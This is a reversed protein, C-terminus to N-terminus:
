KSIFRTIINNLLDSEVLFGDHGFDSAIIEFRAHAIQAAQQRMEEVPFLLDSSIAVLLTRAQIRALAAKIGGRGRGVDHSDVAETMRYYSYANFRKM